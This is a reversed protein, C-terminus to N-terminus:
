GRLATKRKAKALRSLLTLAAELEERSCLGSYAQWLTLDADNVEDVAALIEKV